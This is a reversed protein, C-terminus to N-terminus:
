FYKIEQAKGTKMEVMKSLLANALRSAGIRFLRANLWEEGLVRRVIAYYICADTVTSIGGAPKFGIKRGTKAAFTKIALCMAIAAEPSAGNCNKGTSTKIMDAGSHMAVVSALWINELTNLAATELIVKLRASGCASKIESLERAVFDYNGDLFEGVSIVVDIEDVGAEVAKRIEACKVEVFTQSLPFNAAVVAKFVSPVKLTTTLTPAFIPNLCIGGVNQYEPYYANFDNVKQIFETVSRASDTVSLTTLDIASFMTQLAAFDTEYKKAEDLVDSLLNDVRSLEQPVPYQQIIKEM